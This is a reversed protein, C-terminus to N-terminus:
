VSHLWDFSLFMGHIITSASTSIVKLFYIKMIDHGWFFGGEHSFLILRWGFWSRGTNKKAQNSWVRGSSPPIRCSGPMRQTASTCPMWRHCPAHCPLHLRTTASDDCNQDQRLQLTAGGLGLPRISSSSSSSSSSSTSSSSLSTKYVYSYPVCASPLVVWHYRHFFVSMLVTIVVRSITACIM